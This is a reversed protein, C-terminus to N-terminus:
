SHQYRTAALANCRRQSRRHLTTYFCQVAGPAGARMEALVAALNGGNTSLVAGSKRPAPEAMAYHDFLYSRIHALKERVTPWGPADAPVVQLLDCVLDSVCGLRVQVADHPPWFRFEIEPGGAQRVGEALALKSLTRLRLLAQILSTKGSGNPGIVLNFPELALRTGRLAKFNRFVVSAIMGGRQRVVAAAVIGVECM